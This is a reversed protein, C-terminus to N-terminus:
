APCRPPEVRRSAPLKRALLSGIARIMGASDPTPAIELLRPPPTWADAAARSIAAVALPTHGAPYHDGAAALSRAVAAAALRASRPSFVPLIVAASTTLLRTADAPLDLPQQDYVVMGPVPMEAAVHRGHPHLWGDGLDGLMPMLGAADGPGVTVAFGAARAADATAPGVCIAPRGQGPGAAPVAHASTFILGRAARLAAPDHNVRVIRMLPAVHVRLGQAKLVEAFRSAGPEPRTVLVVPGSPASGDPSAAPQSARFVAHPM